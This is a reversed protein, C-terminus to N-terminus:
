SSHRPRRYLRHRQIYDEVAAPVLFRISRGAAVRARVDSASVDLGTIPLSVVRHGSEHRFGAISPDYCLAERMAVPLADPSLPTTEPPRTMVAFDCLGLLTRFDKWTHLEDFADRGILFVIRADPGLTSRLTRVTDVSYSPGDRELEISWPSLGPVGALALELMALRQRAPTVHVGAKHPPDAAPVFRVAALDLDDRAEEAARLHAVHVPDFTGGFLGIADSAAM